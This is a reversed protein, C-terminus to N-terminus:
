CQNHSHKNETNKHILNSDSNYWLYHNVYLHKKKYMAPSQQYAGCREGIRKRSRPKNVWHKFVNRQGLVLHHVCM